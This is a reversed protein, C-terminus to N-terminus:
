KFKHPKCVSLDKNWKYQSYGYSWSQDQNHLYGVESKEVRERLIDIWKTKPYNDPLLNRFQKLCTEEIFQQFCWKSVHNSFPLDIIYEKKM